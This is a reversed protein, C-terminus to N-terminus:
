LLHTSIQLTERLQQLPTVLEKELQLSNIPQAKQGAQYAKIYTKFGEPVLLLGFVIVIWVVLSKNGNGLEFYQMMIEGRVDTDFNLLVHKLDHVEYGEFFEIGNKELFLLAHQGLSDKPCLGLAKSSIPSYAPQYIRRILPFYIRQAMFEIFNKRIHM